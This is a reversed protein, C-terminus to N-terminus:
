AANGVPKLDITLPVTSMIKALMERRMRVDALERAIRELIPMYQHGCRAVIQATQRLAQELRQETIPQGRRDNM